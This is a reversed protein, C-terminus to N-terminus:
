IEGRKVVTFGHILKNKLEDLYYDIWFQKTNADDYFAIARSGSYVTIKIFNIPLM